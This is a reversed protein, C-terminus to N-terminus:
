DKLDRQSSTEYSGNTFSATHGGVPFSPETLHIGLRREGCSHLILFEIETHTSSTSARSEHQLQQIKEATFPWSFIEREPLPKVPQAKVAHHVKKDDINIM